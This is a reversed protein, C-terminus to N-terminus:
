LFQRVLEENVVEALRRIGEIIEEHGAFTFNLRMESNGGGHPYFATGAVYAVNRALAKEMMALTDVHEPLKVWLFLGGEPKVFSACPIMENIADAMLDRKVRYIDKVKQIRDSLKDETLFYNIAYQSLTNSCLDEGQKAITCRRVLDTRAEMWGTRLGPSLIKSFSGMYVVREDRDFYKVPVVPKGDYNIMGYPDDEIIILDYKVAIEYLKIKRLTEMTVGAPNHIEPMTYIFAPKRGERKLMELVHVLNEPILGNEDIDVTHIDAMFSNFTSLAGTYTPNETIVADGHNMLVKCLLYLAQQSGSTVLINEKCTNIDYTNKMLGCIGERLPQYGETTGYQFASSGHTDIVSNLIDKFEDVPFAEPGPLGGAFSIMGPQETYKLMERIVSSKMNLSSDSYRPSYKEIM